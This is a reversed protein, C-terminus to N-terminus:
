ALDGMIPYWRFPAMRLEPTLGAMGAGLLHAAFGLLILVLGSLVLTALLLALTRGHRYVLSSAIEM